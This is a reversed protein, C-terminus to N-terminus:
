EELEEPSATERIAAIEMRLQEILDDLAAIYAGPSLARLDRQLGPIVGDILIDTM